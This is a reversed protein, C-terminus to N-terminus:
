LGFEFNKYGLISTQNWISSIETLITVITIPFNCELLAQAKEFELEIGM